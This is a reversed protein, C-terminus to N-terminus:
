CSSAGLGRGAGMTRLADACRASYSRVDHPTGRSPIFLRESLSLCGVPTPAPVAGEPRLAGTSIM